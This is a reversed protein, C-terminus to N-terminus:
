EFDDPSGNPDVTIDCVAHFKEAWELYEAISGPEAPGAAFLEAYLAPAHEQLAIRCLEKRDCVLAAALDPMRDLHLRREGAEVFCIAEGSV